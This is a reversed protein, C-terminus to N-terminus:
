PGSSHKIAHGSYPFHFPSLVQQDKKDQDKRCRQTSIYLFRLIFLNSGIMGSKVLAWCRGVAMDRRFANSRFLADQLRDVGLQLVTTELRETVTVAHVRRIPSKHHDCDGSEAQAIM